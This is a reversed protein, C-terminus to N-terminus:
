LGKSDPSLTPETAWASQREPACYLEYLVGIISRAEEGNLSYFITQAVRRTKVLQDQRLRALHQSLASQGLGIARQIEGVSMERQSLHCLVLLRHENSLAKLLDSAQRASDRLAELDPTPNAAAVTLTNNLTM